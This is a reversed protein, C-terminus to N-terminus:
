DRRCLEVGHDWSGGDRECETPSFESRMSESNAMWVFTGLMLAILLLFAGATLAFHWLFERV